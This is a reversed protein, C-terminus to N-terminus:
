TLSFAPNVKRRGQTGQQPLIGSMMITPSIRSPSVALSAVCAASVPCRIKLVRCVLSAGPRTARNNVDADLRIEDPRRDGAHHALSQNAFQALM